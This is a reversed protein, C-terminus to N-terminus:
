TVDEVMTVSIDADFITLVQGTAPKVDTEDVDATIYIYNLGSTIKSVNLGDLTVKGTTYDVTGVYYKVVVGTSDVVNINGTSDDVFKSDLYTTCIDFVDSTLSGKILANSFKLADNGSYGKLTGIPPKIRKKLKIKTVNSRISDDSADILRTITSHRFAAEFISLTDTNYSKIVDFAGNKITDETNLAISSNYSVTTDTTMFTYDPDVVVPVISLVKYKKLITQVDNKAVATLTLGTVPKIAIYVKGFDPPDNDEGGWTIVSSANAYKNLVITKYDNVTVARDQSKFSKPANYKISDLSEANTVGGTATTTVAVASTATGNGGAEPRVYTIDDAITFKPEATTDGTGAGNAEAGKVSFYELTIVNGESLNAGLIGDGFYVEYKGDDVEQLFYVKSENTISMINDYLAYTDQTASSSDQKIKVVLTNTDLGSVPVIYKEEMGSAGVIYDLTGYKGEKVTIGTKTFIRPSASTPTYSDLTTEVLTYFNYSKDIITTTFKTYQPITITAPLDDADAETATLTVTVVAEAGASSKTVYGLHKAISAASSRQSVSDLFMENAVMNLYYSMYHTNYSLIDMLISLGSGEFDYDAFETQGKLFATLNTKITDFDLETIRLKSNQM